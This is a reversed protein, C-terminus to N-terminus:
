GKSAEASPAEDAGEIRRLDALYRELNEILKPLTVPQETCVQWMSGGAFMVRLYFSGTREPHKTMATMKMPEM